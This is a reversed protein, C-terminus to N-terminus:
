LRLKHESCELAMENELCYTIMLFGDGSSSSETWSLLHNEFLISILSFSWSNWSFFLDFCKIVFLNKLCSFKRQSEKRFLRLHLLFFLFKTNKSKHETTTWTTLSNKNWDYIRSRSRSFTGWFATFRVNGGLILQRSVDRRLAKDRTVSKMQSRTPAQLHLCDFAHISFWDVSVNRILWQIENFGLLSELYIWYVLTAYNRFIPLLFHKAAYLRINQTHPQILEVWCLWSRSDLLSPLNIYLGVSIAWFLCVRVLSQYSGAAYFLRRTLWSEDKRFPFNM